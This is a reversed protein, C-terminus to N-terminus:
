ISSWWRQSWLIYDIQNPISWRTIDMHLTKEQTNSSTTKIHSTCERWLVRNAFSQGSKFDSFLLIGGLICKQYHSLSFKESLLWLIVPSIPPFLHQSSLWFIGATGYIQRREWFHSKLNSPTFDGNKHSSSTHIPCLLLFICCQSSWHCCLHYKDLCIITSVTCVGLFLAPPACFQYLLVCWCCYIQSFTLMGFRSRLEM